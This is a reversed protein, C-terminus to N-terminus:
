CTDSRATIRVCQDIVVHSLPRTSAAVLKHGAPGHRASKPGRDNGSIIMGPELRCSLLVMDKTSWMESQMEVEAEEAVQKMDAGAGVAEAHRSSLV